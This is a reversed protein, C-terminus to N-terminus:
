VYEKTKKRIIFLVNEDFWHVQQPNKFENKINLSFGKLAEELEEPSYLLFTSYHHSHARAMLQELAAMRSYAFFVISEFVFDATADISQKVENLSYLRNEKENFQPFYLGWINKSNQERLRTYVFLYGGSRIVRASESLFRPLDFHHIANFTLVCDLTNNAFPMTEATSCKASFNRIDHRTLYTSLNKLMDANADLCILNLRDGLYRYLLMDYRGAGCGVDVAEIYKLHNLKNVILLIPESDTTRINRYKRAINSFHKQMAKSMTNDRGTEDFNEVFVKVGGNETLFM